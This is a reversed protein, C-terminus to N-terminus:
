ASSTRKATSPLPLLPLQTTTSPPPTTTMISAPKEGRSVRARMRQFEGYPVRVDPNGGKDKASSPQVSRSLDVIHASVADVPPFTDTPQSSVLLDPTAIADWFEDEARTRNRQPGGEVLMSKCLDRLKKEREQM